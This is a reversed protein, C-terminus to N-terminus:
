PNVVPRDDAVEPSVRAEGGDTIDIARVAFGEGTTMFQSATVGADDAVLMGGEIEDASDAIRGIALGERTVIADYAVDHGAELQAALDVSVEESFVVEGADALDQSIESMSTHDVVAIIASTGPALHKGLRNLPENGLGSDRLRAALGGILAGVAVPAALTAGAVVGIAAGIVGGISAGQGTGMDATEKIHLKGLHDKRIVAASRIGILRDRQAAKLEGLAHMARQEDHFTAVLLGLPVEKEHNGSGPNKADAERSM